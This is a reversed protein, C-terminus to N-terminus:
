EIKLNKMVRDDTSPAPSPSAADGPGTLAGGADTLYALVALVAALLLSAIIRFTM